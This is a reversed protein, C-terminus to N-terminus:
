HRKKARLSFGIALTVGICVSALTTLQQQKKRAEPATHVAHAFNVYSAAHVQDIKRQAIALVKEAGVGANWNQELLVELDNTQSAPQRYAPALTAYYNSIAAEASTILRELLHPKAEAELWPDELYAKALEGGKQAHENSKEIFASRSDRGPNESFSRGAEQLADQAEEYSRMAIVLQSEEGFQPLEISETPSSM